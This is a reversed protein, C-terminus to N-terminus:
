VYEPNGGPQGGAFALLMEHAGVPAPVNVRRTTTVEGPPAIAVAEVGRVTNGTPPPTPTVIRANEAAGFLKVTPFEVTRWTTAVPPM